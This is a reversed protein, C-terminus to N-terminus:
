NPRSHRCVHFPLYRNRYESQWRSTEKRVNESFKAQDMATKSVSTLKTLRADKSKLEKAALHRGQAGKATQYVGHHSLVNHTRKSGVVPEDDGAGYQFFPSDDMQTRPRGLPDLDPQEIKKSVNKLNKSITDSLVRAPQGQFKSKIPQSAGCNCDSSVDHEPQRNHVTYTMHGSGTRIDRQCVSTSSVSRETCDSESSSPTPTPTHKHSRRQQQRPQQQRPQQQSPSQLVVVPQGSEYEWDDWLFASRHHGHEAQRRYERYNYNSDFSRMISPQCASRVPSFERRYTSTIKKKTM